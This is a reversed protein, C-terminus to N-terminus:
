WKWRFREQQSLNLCQGKMNSTALHFMEKIGNRGVSPWISCISPIPSDCESRLLVNVAMLGLKALYPSSIIWGVWGKPIKKSLNLNVSIIEWKPCKLNQSLLELRPVVLVPVSFINHKFILRSYLSRYGGENGKGWNWWLQM